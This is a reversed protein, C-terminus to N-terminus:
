SHRRRTLSLATFGLGAGVVLLGLGVMAATNDSGTHPMDQGPVAEETAGPAPTEPGLGEEMEFPEEPEGTDGAEEDLGLGEDMELPEDGAPAAEDGAAPDAADDALDGEPLDIVPADDVCGEGTRDDAFSALVEDGLYLTAVFNCPLYAESHWTGGHGLAAIQNVTFMEEAAAGPADADVMEATFTRNCWGEHTDRFSVEWTWEDGRDIGVVNLDSEQLWECDIGLPPFEFGGIPEFPTPEFPQPLTPSCGVPWQLRFGGDPQRAFFPTCDTPEAARVSPAAVFSAIAAVSAAVITRTFNM